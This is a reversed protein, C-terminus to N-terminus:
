VHISALSSLAGHYWLLVKKASKNGIWHAQTGSPLTTTEPAFGRDKAFQLYLPTTTGNMYREQALDLNGLQSRMMSFMVDKFYNHAGKQGKFPSIWLRASAATVTLTILSRDDLFAAGSPSV